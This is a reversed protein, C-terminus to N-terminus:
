RHGSRHTLETVADATGGEQADCSTPRTPAIGSRADLSIRCKSKPGSFGKALGDRGATMAVARSRMWYTGFVKVLGAQRKRLSSGPRMALEEDVV